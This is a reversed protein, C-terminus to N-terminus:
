GRATLLVAKIQDVVKMNEDTMHVLGSARGVIAYQSAPMFREEWASPADHHITAGAFSGSPALKSLFVVYQQGEEFSPSMDTLSAGPIFISITGHVKVKADRKLVEVIRIQVVRGEVYDARDPLEAIVKGNPLQKPRTGMKDAHVVAMQKEAVGVVIATSDNALAAWDRSDGTLQSNNMHSGLCILLAAALMMNGWGKTREKRIKRQNRITRDEDAGIVGISRRVNAPDSLRPRAGAREQNGCLAQHAFVAL